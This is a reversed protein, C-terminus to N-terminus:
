MILGISICLSVMASLNSKTIVKARPFLELAFLRQGGPDLTINRYVTFMADMRGKRAVHSTEITPRIVPVVYPL